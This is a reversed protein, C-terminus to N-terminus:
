SYTTTAQGLRSMQNFSWLFNAMNLNFIEARRIADDGNGAGSTRNLIVKKAIVPADFFLTNNCTNSNVVTTGSKGGIAVRDGGSFRCTNVSDAIIIVNIYTPRSTFYVNKAIIIVQTLDDAAVKQGSDQNISDGDIIISNNPASYVITHNPKEIGKEAFRESSINPLSSIYLNNKSDFRIIGSPQVIVDAGSYGSVDYYTAGSYNKTALGNVSFAGDSSGYREKIRQEYQTAMVGGISSSSSECNANAFTQTMFTCKNSNAKTSIKNNGAGTADNSRTVNAQTGSYGDRSYGLAAGSAFLSSTNSTEAWVRGFAGYESWSGFNIKTSGISRAYQATKIQTASYTNSSEVSMSPKKAITSCSVATSWNSSNNSGESLAIDNVGAGAVSSADKADHSDAPYVSVEVCIKDGVNVGSNPISVTVSPLQTGGDDVSKQSESGVTGDILGDSNLRINNRSSAAVASESIVGGSSTKFYYKVNITTPKSITAYNRKNGSFETNNRPATVVGPTMTLSEGLYAVKGTNGSNNTVYPRLVYNYPIVVSASATRPTNSFTNGNSNYTQDNWELKQTITSGADIIGIDYEGSRGCDLKGAIQYYGPDDDSAPIGCRYKKQASANPSWYWGD